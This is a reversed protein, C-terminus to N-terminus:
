KKYWDFNVKTYDIEKDRISDIVEFIGSEKFDSIKPKNDNAYIKSLKDMFNDTLLATVVVNNLGDFYKHEGIFEVTRRLTDIRQTQDIKPYVKKYMFSKIVNFDKATESDKFDIYGKEKSEKVLANICSYVRNRQDFGLKYLEDPLDYKGIYGLRVADNVDSFLYAIKDSFMVISNEQPSNTDVSLEGSGRSHNLMADLTQYTLNLGCGKREIEQAIIPGFIYHKFPKGGFETFVKEGLHGYPTHGIDHGVAAAMCLEVNLGLESAITVAVSLVENTHSLRTRVYPNDPLTVVQTKLPLRRYSKSQLINSYDFLFPNMSTVFKESDRRKAKTFDFPQILNTERM